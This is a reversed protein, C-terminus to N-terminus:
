MVRRSTLVGFACGTRAALFLLFQLLNYGTHSTVAYCRYCCPWCPPLLCCCPTWLMNHKARLLTCYFVSIRCRVQRSADLM